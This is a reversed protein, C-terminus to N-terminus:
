EDGDTEGIEPTDEHVVTLVTDEGASELVAGFVDRLYSWIKFASEASIEETKETVEIEMEAPNAEMIEKFVKANEEGHTQKIKNFLQPTVESMIRKKTSKFVRPETLRKMLVDQAKLYLQRQPVLRIENIAEHLEKVIGTPNTDNLWSRLTAREIGCNKAIKSLSEYRGFGEVIKFFREETLAHPIIGSKSEIEIGSESLKKDKESNVLEGNESM